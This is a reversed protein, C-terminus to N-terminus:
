GAQSGELGTWFGMSTQGLIGTTTNMSLRGLAPEDPGEPSIFHDNRDEFCAKQPPHSYKLTECCAVFSLM